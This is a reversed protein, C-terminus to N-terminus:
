KGSGRQLIGLKEWDKWEHFTRAHFPFEVALLLRRWMFCTRHANKFMMLMAAAHVM